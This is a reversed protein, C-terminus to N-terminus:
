TRKNLDSLVGNAIETLLVRDKKFKSIERIAFIAGILRAQFAKPEIDEPWEKNKLAIAIANSFNKEVEKFLAQSLKAPKSNESGFEIASNLIFCGHQGDTALSKDILTKLFSQIYKIPCGECHFSKRSDQGYKELSKLFLDEKSKFASYLSGKQLGTADMLDALSTNKYGKAWFVKLAKDLVIDIDYEKPRAM